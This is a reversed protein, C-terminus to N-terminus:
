QKKISEKFTVNFKLSKICIAVYQLADFEYIEGEPWQFSSKNALIGDVNRTKAGFDDVHRSQDSGFPDM